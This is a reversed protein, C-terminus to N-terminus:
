ADDGPKWIHSQYINFPADDRCYLPHMPTGNKNVALSALGHGQLLRRVEKDRDMHVGHAGWGVLILSCWCSMDQLWSDNDPGVPDAAALMNKPKTARFAFLNGVWLGGCGERTAFKICKRLTPDLTNEDATSPNLGVFLMMPKRADWVRSLAYRYIRDEDFYAAGAETTM